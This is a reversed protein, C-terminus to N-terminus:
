YWHRVRVETDTGALASQFSQVNSDRFHYPIVVKPKFAKVCAAAEEPPMTYPLNMCVFAVDIDKLARMEDTCETDGSVYVHKDGFTFVYGNGRGKDHFLKGEAPGRVLNYMPVATVSFGEFTRSEGNKMAEAAPLKEVVVSPAVLKTQPTRIADLAPPDFHDPHIDTIFVYDAKPLQAYDAKSWPDLYIAKGGFEFLLTAHYLPTVRLEGQSTAFTDTARPSRAGPTDGSTAPEKRTSGCAIALMAAFAGLALPVFSPRRPLSRSRM